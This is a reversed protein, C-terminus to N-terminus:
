GLPATPTPTPRSLTSRANSREERLHRSAPRFESYPSSRLHHSRNDPACCATPPATFGATPLRNRGCSIRQTRSRLAEAAGRAVRRLSLAPLELRLWPM